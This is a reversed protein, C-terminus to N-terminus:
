LLRELLAVVEDPARVYSTAATDGGPEGVLVAVGDAPVVRFADEDTKDDGVFMPLMRAGRAQEIARMIFLLAKGKHWDVDPRVEIVRKGTTLRLGQSQQEFARRVGEQVRLQTPEDDIMRYHVSLSLTKNELYVGPIGGVADHLAAACSQVRETLEVAAPLTEQLGPGRIELGHNGAYFVEALGIREALDGLGRGSVLAVETDARQALRELVPRAEPLLEADDPHPVIPALTGDFDLAVLMHGYHDRQGRWKPVLEFAHTLGM